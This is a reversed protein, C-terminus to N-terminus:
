FSVGVIGIARCGNYWIGMFIVGTIDIVRSLHWIGFEELSCNIGCVNLKERIWISYYFGGGRSSNEPVKGANFLLDVNM